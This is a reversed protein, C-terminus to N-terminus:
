GKRLQIKSPVKNYSLLRMFLIGAFLYAEPLIVQRFLLSVFPFLILSLLTFRLLGKILPQMKNKGIFICLILNTPIAWMINYNPRALSVDSFLMLSLIFLGILGSILLLLRDFLIVNFTTKGKWQFFSYIAVIILLLSWLFLFVSYTSATKNSGSPLLSQSSFILSSGNVNAYTLLNILERPVFAAEYISLPVDAKAGLSINFVLYQLYNQLPHDKSIIDRYTKRANIGYFYDKNINLEDFLEDRLQTTCNNSQLNFTYFRDGGILLDNLHNWIHQRQELSFNLYYEDVGRKQEEYRKLFQRFHIGELSSDLKGLLLKYLFFPQGEDYSGFNFIVDIKLSADQVRLASHGYSGEYADSPSCVVISFFSEPTLQSLQNAKVPFTYLFLAVIWLQKQLLLKSNKKM